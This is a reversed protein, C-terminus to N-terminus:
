KTNVRTYYMKSVLTYTQTHQRLVMTIIQQLLFASCCLSTSQNHNIARLDMKCLNTLINAGDGSQTALIVDYRKGIEQIVYSGVISSRSGAPCFPM